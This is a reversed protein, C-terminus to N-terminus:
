WWGWCSCSSALGGALERGTGGELEAELKKIELKVKLEALRRQLDQDIEPGGAKPDTAPSVRVQSGAAMAQQQPAQGESQVSNLGSGMPSPTQDLVPTDWFGMPLEDVVEAQQEARPRKNLGPSTAINDHLSGESQTQPTGSSRARKPAASIAALEEARLTAERGAPRGAPRTRPRPEPVSTPPKTKAAAAPQKGKAPGPSGAAQKGKAPRPPGATQKGGAAKSARVNEMSARVYMEGTLKDPGRQHHQVAEAHCLEGAALGAKFAKVAESLLSAIGERDEEVELSKQLQGTGNNLCGARENEEDPEEPIWDLVTEGIVIRLMKEGPLGGVPVVEGHYRHFCANIGDNVLKATAPVPKGNPLRRNKTTLPGMAPGKRAPPAKVQVRKTHHKVIAPEPITAPRSTKKRGRRAPSAFAALLGTGEADPTGDEAGAEAAGGDLQVPQLLGSLRNVSAKLKTRNAASKALLSRTRPTCGAPEPAPDSVVPSLRTVRPPLKTRQLLQVSAKDLGLEKMYAERRAINAMREREYTTLNDESADFRVIAQPTTVGEEDDTDAVEEAEMDAVDEMDCDTEDEEDDWFGEEVLAAKKGKKAARLEEDDAM